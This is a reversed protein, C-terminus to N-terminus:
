RVVRVCAVGVGGESANDVGRANVSCQVPAVGSTGGSKLGVLTMGQTHEAHVYSFAFSATLQLTHPVPRPGHLQGAHVRSFTAFAICQSAHSVARGGIGGGGSRGDGGGDLSGGWVAERGALLAAPQVHAAQVSSFGDSAICQSAHSAGKSAGIEVGLEM